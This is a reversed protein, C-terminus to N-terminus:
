YVPGGHVHGMTGKAPGGMPTLYVPLDEVLNLTAPDLVHLMGDKGSVFGYKGGLAPLRDYREESPSRSLPLM